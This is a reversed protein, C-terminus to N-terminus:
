HPVSLCFASKSAGKKEFLSELCTSALTRVFRAKCSGVASVNRVKPCCAVLHIATDAILLTRVRPLICKKYDFAESFATAFKDQVNLLQITLLNPLLRLFYALEKFTTTSPNNPVVVNVARFNKILMVPLCTINTGSVQRYFFPCSQITNHGEVPKDPRFCIGTSFTATPSSTHTKHIMLCTVKV